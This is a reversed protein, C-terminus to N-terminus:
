FAKNYCSQSDSIGILSAPAIDPDTGKKSETKKLSRFKLNWFRLGVPKRKKKCGTM